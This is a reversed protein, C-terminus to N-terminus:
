PNVPFAIVWNSSEDSFRTSVGVAFFFAMIAYTISGEIKVVGVGQGFAQFARSCEIVGVPYAERMTGQGEILGDCVRFDQNLGGLVCADLSEDM